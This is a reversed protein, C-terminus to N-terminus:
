IHAPQHWSTDNEWNYMIASIIVLQLPESTHLDVCWMHCHGTKKLLRAQRAYNLICAM